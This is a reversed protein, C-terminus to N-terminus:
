RGPSVRQVVELKKVVVAPDLTAGLSVASVLGAGLVSGLQVGADPGMERTLLAPLLPVMALRFLLRLLRVEDAIAPVDAAAALVSVDGDRIVCVSEPATVLSPPAVTIDDICNVAAFPPVSLAFFDAAAPTGGSTLPLLSRWGAM